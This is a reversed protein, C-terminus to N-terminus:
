WQMSLCVASLFAKLDVMPMLINVGQVPGSIDQIMEKFVKCMILPM